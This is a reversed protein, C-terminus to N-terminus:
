MGVPLVHSNGKLRCGWWCRNNATKNDKQYYGNQWTYLSMDNQNQDTNGQHNTVTLMKEYAKSWRCTKKPFVGIWISQKSKKIDLQTLEKYIKSILMMERQSTAKKNWQHNGEHHLFKKSQHLGNKLYKSKSGKVSSVSGFLINGLSIDFLM